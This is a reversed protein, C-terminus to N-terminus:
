SVETGLQGYFINADITNDTCLFLEGTVSNLFVWPYKSPNEEATPNRSEVQNYIRPPTQKLSM